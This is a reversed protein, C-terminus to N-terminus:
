LELCSPQPLKNSPFNFIEGIKASPLFFPHPTTPIEGNKQTDLCTCTYWKYRVLRSTQTRRNSPLNRIEEIKTAHIFFLHCVDLDTM